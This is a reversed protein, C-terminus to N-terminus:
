GIGGEKNRNQITEAEVRRSIELRSLYAKNPNSHYISLLPVLYISDLPFFFLKNISERECEGRSKLEFTIIIFWFILFIAV